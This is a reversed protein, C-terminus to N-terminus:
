SLDENKQLYASQVWLKKHGNEFVSEVVYYTGDIKKIFRIQPAPKQNMDLFESSHIQKGKETLLDVSDYNDLVWGIRAIDDEVAMSTDQKGSEGHRNIIHQVGNTNINHTYGSVDINLLEGIDAAARESVDSIKQRKFTLDGEKVRQVFNKINDDVAALYARM